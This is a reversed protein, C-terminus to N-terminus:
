KILINLITEINLKTLLILVSALSLYPGFPLINNNNKTLSYISLPLAIFSAIFIGVLSMDFGLILGIIFMLKIDGGGLSEKKFIFDGLVKFLYLVAFSAAGNLIPLVMGNIISNKTILSKILLEIILLISGFIIIEDPIIYYRIDSITIIILISIFTIAIIFEINLGFVIYSILFLLGTFLEFIPYIVSIKTKCKLCKGGLFVYSFLPILEYFRLKHNCHVCHSPPFSISQKNPLRYGVVNYFSGFILGFVFILIGIIIEINM